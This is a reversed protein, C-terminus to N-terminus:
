RPWSRTTFGLQKQLNDKPPHAKRQGTSSAELVILKRFTGITVRNQPAKGRKERLSLNVRLSSFVLGSGRKNRNRERV